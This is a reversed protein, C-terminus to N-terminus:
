TADDVQARSTMVKAPPMQVHTASPIEHNENPAIACTTILSTLPGAIESRSRPSGAPHYSPSTTQSADQDEELRQNTLSTAPSMPAPVAVLMAATWRARVSTWQNSVSAMRFLYGPSSSAPVHHRM